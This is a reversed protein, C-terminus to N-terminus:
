RECRVCRGRRRLWYAYTAASLTVVWLPWFMEPLSVAIDSTKGPFANALGGPVRLRVFILGASMEINGAEETM